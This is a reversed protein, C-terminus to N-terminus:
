MIAYTITEEIRDINKQKQQIKYYGVCCQTNENWFSTDDQEVTDTVYLSIGKVSNYPYM